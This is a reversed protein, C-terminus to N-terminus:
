GAQNDAKGIDDKKPKPINRVEDTDPIKAVVFDVCDKLVEWERGDFKIKDSM